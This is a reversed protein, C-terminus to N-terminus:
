HLTRAFTRGRLLAGAQPDEEVLDLLVVAIEGLLQESPELCPFVSVEGLALEPGDQVTFGCLNPCRQFITEISAEFM